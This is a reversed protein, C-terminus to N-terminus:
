GKMSVSTPGFGDPVAKRREEQAAREREAQLQAIREAVGQQTVQRWPTSTIYSRVDGVELGADLFDAAITQFLARNSEREQVRQVKKELEASREQEKRLAYGLRQERSHQESM